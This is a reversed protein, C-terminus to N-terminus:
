SLTTLVNTIDPRSVEWINTAPYLCKHYIIYVPVAVNKWGPSIEPRLSDWYGPQFHEADLHFAYPFFFLIKEM